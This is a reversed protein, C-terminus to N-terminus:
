EYGTTGPGTPTPPSAPMTELARTLESAHIAVAPVRTPSAQSGPAVPPAALTHVPALNLALAVLLIATMLTRTLM